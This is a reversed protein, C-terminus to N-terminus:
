LNIRKGAIFSLVDEQMERPVSHKVAYIKYFDIKNEYQKIFKLTPRSAVVDDNESIFIGLQKYTMNGMNKVPDVSELWAMETKKFVKDFTLGASSVALFAQRYFDPTSIIPILRNIKTTRTALLYAIMGGLSVGIMDFMEYAKYETNSLMLIDNTTQDIVNFADKLRYFESGTIYPEEIRDGHKCADVCVVHYGLRCLNMAMYEGGRIKNSEYGHQIFTLGKVELADNKYEILPIGNVMREEVTIM